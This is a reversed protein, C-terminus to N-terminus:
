SFITILALLHLDSADMRFEYFIALLRRSNKQFRIKKKDSIKIFDLTAPSVIDVWLQSGAKYPTNVMKVREHTRESFPIEWLRPIITNVHFYSPSATYFFYARGRDKFTIIIRSPM